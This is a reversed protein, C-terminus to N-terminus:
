VSEACHQGCRSFFFTMLSSTAFRSFFYTTSYCMGHKVAAAKTLKPM